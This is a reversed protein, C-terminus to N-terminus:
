EKPGSLKTADPTMPCMQLEMEKMAFKWIKRPARPAQMKLGLRSYKYISVPTRHDDGRQHCVLELSKKPLVMPILWIPLLTPTPSEMIYYNRAM